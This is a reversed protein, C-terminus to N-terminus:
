ERVEGKGEMRKGIWNAIENRVEEISNFLQLQRGYGANRVLGRM